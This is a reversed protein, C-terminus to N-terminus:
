GAEVLRQEFCLSQPRNTYRGYRPIRRYGCIEYLHIAEPQLVGTELVLKHYGFGIAIEELRRLIMRAIGRGRMAPEVFMRKIEGTEPGFDTECTRLAGCGIPEGDTRAVVFASRPTQVNAPTFAGSGDDGYRAGLDTSLHEILRLADPQNVDEITVAINVIETEWHSRTMM